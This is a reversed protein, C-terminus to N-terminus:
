NPFFFNHGYVPVGNADLFLLALDARREVTRRFNSSLLESPKPLRRVSSGYSFCHFSFGLKQVVVGDTDVTATFFLILSVGVKVWGM